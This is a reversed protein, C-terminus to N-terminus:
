EDEDELDRTNIFDHESLDPYGYIELMAAHATGMMFAKLHCDLALDIENLAHHALSTLGMAKAHENPFDAQFQSLRVLARAAYGNLILNEIDNLQDTMEDRKAFLSKTAIIFASLRSIKKVKHKAQWQKANYKPAGKVISNGLEVEIKKVESYIPTQPDLKLWHRGKRDTNIEPGCEEHPVYILSGDQLLVWSGESQLIIGEDQDSTQSM